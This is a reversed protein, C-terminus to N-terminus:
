VDYKPMRLVLSNKRISPILYTYGLNQRVAGFLVKNSREESLIYLLTKRKKNEFNDNSCLSCTTPSSFTIVICALRGSNINLSCIKVKSRALLDILLSKGPFTKAILM